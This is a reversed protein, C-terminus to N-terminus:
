RNSTQIGGGGECLIKADLDVLNGMGSLHGMGEGDLDLKTAKM